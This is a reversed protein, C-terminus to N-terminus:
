ESRKVRCASKLQRVFDEAVAAASDPHRDILDVLASAVVAGDTFSTVTRVHEPTSIGFGAIAPLSTERRVLDVLPRLGDSLASRAGTVGKLSVCYVFGAASRAIRSVREPSTTPAVMGILDLGARACRDRVPGAEDVPLDPVILGDAGAAAAMAAFNDGACLVPNYYSMLVLPVDINPRVSAILDLAQEMGTGGALARHNAGQLTAGDAIPDSFPIGLEVLDAGGRVIAYLLEETAALTPYGVMLYPALAAEERDRLARFTNDIRGM